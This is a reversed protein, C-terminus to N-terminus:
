KLEDFSFSLIDEDSETEEPWTSAMERLVRDAEICSEDLHNLLAYMAAVHTKNERTQVASLINNLFILLTFATNTMVEGIGFVSAGAIVISHKNYPAGLPVYNSRSSSHINGSSDKHLPYLYDYETFSELHEFKIRGKIHPLASAAWAYNQKFNNGFISIVEDNRKKLKALEEDSIFNSGNKKHVESHTKIADYSDVAEHLIYRLATKHGTRM